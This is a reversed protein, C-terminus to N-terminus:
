DSPSSLELIKAVRNAAYLKHVEKSNYIWQTTASDAWFEAYGIAGDLQQKIFLAVRIGIVAAILISQQWIPATKAKGM